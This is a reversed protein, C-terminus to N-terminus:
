PNKPEKPKKPEKSHLVSFIENIETRLFGSGFKMVTGETWNTRNRNETLETRNRPEPEKQGPRTRARRPPPTRSRTTPSPFTTPTTGPPKPELSALEQRHISAAAEMQAAKAQRVSRRRLPRSSDPRPSIRLRKEEAAAVEATTRAWSPPTQWCLATPTPSPNDEDRPSAEPAEKCCGTEQPPTRADHTGRYDLSIWSTNNHTTAVYSCGVLIVLYM